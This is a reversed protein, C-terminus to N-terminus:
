KKAIKQSLLSVLSNIAMRNIPNKSSLSSVIKKQVHENFEALIKEELDRRLCRLIAAIIKENQDKLVEILTGVKIGVLQEVQTDKLQIKYQLFEDKNLDSVPTPEKYNQWFENLIFNAEEKSIKSQTQLKKYVDGRNKLKFYIDAGITGGILSLIVSAENCSNKTDIFNQLNKTFNEPDFEAKYRIKQLVNDFNKINQQTQHTKESKKRVFNPRNLELFYLILITLIVCLITAIIILSNPMLFYIAIVLITLIGVLILYIRDM